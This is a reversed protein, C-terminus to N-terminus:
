VGQDGFAHGRDFDLGAVTEVEVGLALLQTGRSRQCLRRGTSSRSWTGPRERGGARPRWRLRMIDIQDTGLHNRGNGRLAERLRTSAKQSPM